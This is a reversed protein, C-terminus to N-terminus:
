LLREVRDGHCSESVVTSVEVDDLESAVLQAVICGLRRPVYVM